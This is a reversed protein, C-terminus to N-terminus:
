TPNEEAEETRQETETLESVDGTLVAVAVKYLKENGAKIAAVLKAADVKTIMGAEEALQVILNKTGIPGYEADALMDILEFGDQIENPNGKYTLAAEFLAAQKQLDDLADMVAFLTNGSSDISKAYEALKSASLRLYVAKDDLIIKTARM